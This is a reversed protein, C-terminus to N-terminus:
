YVMLSSRSNTATPAEATALPSTWPNATLPPVLWDATLSRAPAFDWTDDSTREATANIVPASRNGTIASMGVATSAAMTTLTTRPKILKEEIRSIQSILLCFKMIATTATTPTRTNPTRVPSTSATPRDM